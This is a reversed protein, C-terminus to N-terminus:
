AGSRWVLVPITANALVKNTQSGLVLARFGSWGHPAIFILDCGREVAVEVIAEWPKDNVRHIPTFTVGAAQALHAIPDLAKQAERRSREEEERAERMVEHASVGGPRFLPTSHMATVQAGVAQAFRVGDEAARRSLESGDVPILVHKYM